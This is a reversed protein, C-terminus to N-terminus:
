VVVDHRDEHIIWESPVNAQRRYPDWLVFYEVHVVKGKVKGVQEVQWLEDGLRAMVPQVQRGADAASTILTFIIGAGGSVIGAGISLLGTLIPYSRGGGLEKNVSQQFRSHATDFNFLRRKSANAKTLDIGPAPRYHLNRGAGVFHVDILAFRRYKERAMFGNITSSPLSRGTSPGLEPLIKMHGNSM